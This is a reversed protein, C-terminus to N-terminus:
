FRLMDFLAQAVAQPDSAVSQVIFMVLLVGAVVLSIAHRNRPVELERLAAALESELRRWGLYNQKTGSSVLSVNRMAALSELHLQVGLTPLVLSDGAWRAERDLEVAHEALISRLEEPALNYIVLRPRMSLVLLVLSLVYLALLLAWVYPGFLLAAMVPFFLEVPGIVVLGGVALGLALIDRAGSVLLPRRSLNIAGLLLLYIAVPGLALALRLPDM